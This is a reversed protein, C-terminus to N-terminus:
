LASHILDVMRDSGDLVGVSAAARSMSELRDRDAMLPLLNQRLWASDFQADDVLIGGGAQVVGTANFRQEGNGVPYPVYVAPIGLASHESVTAAGARAVAVDAVALALDMRDCYDVLHYHEVQPDTFERREGQVHLVQFGTATLQAASEIM